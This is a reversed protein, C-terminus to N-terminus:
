CEVRRGRIPKISAEHAAAQAYTILMPIEYSHWSSNYMNSYM